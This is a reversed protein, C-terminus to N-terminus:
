FLPQNQNSWGQSTKLRGSVAIKDLYAVPVNKAAFIDQLLAANEPTALNIKGQTVITHVDYFDRARAAPHRGFEYEPMQQCIARLKEIALMPLTYVYVTYQDVEVAQKGECHEYKSIDITFTRQQLPGVVESNRRVELNGHHENFKAKEILKFEIRYGGWNPPQGSQKVQPKESFRCDFVEFGASDFRDKLSQM